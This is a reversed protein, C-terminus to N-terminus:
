SLSCVICSSVPCSHSDKYSVHHFQCVNKCTLLCEFSNCNEPFVHLTNTCNGCSCLTNSRIRVLKLTYFFLLKKGINKLTKAQLDCFCQRSESHSKMELFFPTYAKLANLTIVKIANYSQQTITLFKWRFSIFCTLM